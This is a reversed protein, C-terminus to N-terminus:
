SCVRLAATLVPTLAGIMYLNNALNGGCTESANGSCAMNCGNSVGSSIALAYDNSAWCERGYQLAFYRYGGSLANNYCKLVTSDPADTYMLNPVRRSARDNFCGLHTWRQTAVALRLVSPM